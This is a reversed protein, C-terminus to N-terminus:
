RRIRRQKEKQYVPPVHHKRAYWTYSYIDVSFRLITHRRTKATEFTYTSSIM